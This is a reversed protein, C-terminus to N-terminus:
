LLNHRDGGEKRPTAPKRSMEKLAALLVEKDWLWSGKLKFGGPILHSNQYVWKQSKRLLGAVEGATLLSNM